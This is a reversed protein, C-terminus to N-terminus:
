KPTKTHLASQKRDQQWTDEGSTPKIGGGMLNYDKIRNVVVGTFGAEVLAKELIEKTFGTHHAMFPNTKMSERHGFYMDLGTVPGCDAEFLVEDSLAVDELDPLILLLRGGETLVRLCERLAIGVEHPYLHELCHSSYVLDFGSIPGMDTMSAVIDPKVDPNIDLKIEEYKGPLWEPLAHGGAGVHLARGSSTM